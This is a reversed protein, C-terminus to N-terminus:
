SFLTGITMAPLWFFAFIDAKGLYTWELYYVIFLLLLTVVNVLKYNFSSNIKIKAKHEKTRNARSLKPTLAWGQKINLIGKMNAIFYTHLLSWSLWTAYPIFLLNKYRKHKYCTVFLPVFNALLAILIIVAYPKGLYQLYYQYLIANYNDSNMTLMLVSILALIISLEIALATTFYANQRILSVKEKFNMKKSKVILWFYEKFTRITGATWRDQQIRFASYHHPVDGINIVDKRYIGKYGKIYYRNTLDIDETLHGPLFGDVEYLQSLRFMTCCGSYLIADGCNQRGPLDVYYCANENLALCRQLNETELHYSIRKTQVFAIKKNAEMVELCREITDIQPQWDADLLYMYEFKKAKLYHELEKLSGAKFGSNKKRHIVTFGKSEYGVTGKKLFRKHSICKAGKNLAIRRLMPYTRNDKSDDACIIMKNKYTLKECAAITDKLVPGENFSVIVIAVKKNSLKRVKKFKPQKLSYYSYRFIYYAFFCFYALLAVQLTIIIIAFM